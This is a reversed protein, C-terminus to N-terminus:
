VDFKAIKQDLLTGDELLAKFRITYDGHNLDEPLDFISEYIVEHGPLIPNPLTTELSKLEKGTSGL